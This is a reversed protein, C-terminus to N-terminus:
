IDEIYSYNLEQSISEDDWARRVEVEFDARKKGSGCEFIVRGALRVKESRVVVIRLRALGVRQPSRCLPNRLFSQMLDYSQKEMEFFLSDSIMRNQIWQVKSTGHFSIELNQILGSHFLEQLKQVFDNMETRLIARYAMTAIAGYPLPTKEDQYLAASSVFLIDPKQSGYWYPLKSEEKWFRIRVPRAMAEMELLEIEEQSLNCSERAKLCIASIGKLDEAARMFQLEALGGGNDLFTSASASGTAFLLLFCLKKIM